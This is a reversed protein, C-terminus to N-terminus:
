GYAMEGTPMAFPPSTASVYVLAEPGPNVIAHAAGPPVLVMTGAAVDQEEEGVTMRGRGAVIVYVQESDPHEHLPQRSGPACEVYTVSLHRSGFQGPALLLYSVQGNGRRNAPSESIHQTHMAAM